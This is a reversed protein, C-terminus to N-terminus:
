HDVLKQIMKMKRRMAVTNCFSEEMADGAPAFMVMTHAILDFPM